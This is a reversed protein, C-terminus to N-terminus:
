FSYTTRMNRKLDTAHLTLHTPSTLKQIPQGLSKGFENKEWERRLDAQLPM